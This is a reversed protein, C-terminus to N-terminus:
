GPMNLFRIRRNRGISRSGENLRSTDAAVSSFFQFPFWSSRNSESGRKAYAVSQDTQRVGFSERAVVAGTRGVGHTDRFLRTSEQLADMPVGPCRADPLGSESEMLVDAPIASLDEYEGM